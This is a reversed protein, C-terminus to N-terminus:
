DEVLPINMQERKEEIRAELANTNGLATCLREASGQRYLNMKGPWYLENTCPAVDEINPAALKELM